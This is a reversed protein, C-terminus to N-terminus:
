RQKENNQVIEWAKNLKKQLFKYSYGPLPLAKALASDYKSIIKLVDVCLIESKKRAVSAESAVETASKSLSQFSRAIPLESQAIFFLLLTAFLKSYDVTTIQGINRLWIFALIFSFLIGIGALTYHVRMTLKAQSGTWFASEQINHLLRQFSKEHNSSYYEGLTEPESAKMETAHAYLNLKDMEAPEIGLGQQLVFLRRIKEGKQYYYNGIEKLILVILPGVFASSATFINNSANNAITVVAIIILAWQCVISARIWRKAMAFECKMIEGISQQTEM